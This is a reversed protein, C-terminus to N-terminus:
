LRILQTFLSAELHTRQVLSTEIASKLRSFQEESIEENDFREEVQNRLQAVVIRLQSLQFVLEGKEGELTTIRSSFTDKLRQVIRNHDSVTLMDSEKLSRSKFSTKLTSLNTLAEELESIKEQLDKQLTVIHAEAHRLQKDKQLLAQKNEEYLRDLEGHRRDLTYAQQVLVQLVQDYKRSDVPLGSSSLQACVRMRPQIKSTLCINAYRDHSPSRQNRYSRDFVNEGEDADEQMEDAILSVWPAFSDGEPEFSVELTDEVEEEDSNSRSDVM